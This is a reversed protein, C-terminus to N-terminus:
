LFSSWVFDVNPRPNAWPWHMTARKCPQNSKLTVSVPVIADSTIDGRCWQFKNRDANVSASRSWSFHTSRFPLAMESINGSLWLFQFNCLAGNTEIPPRSTIFSIFILSKRDPRHLNLVDSSKSDYKILSFTQLICGLQNTELEIQIYSLLGFPIMISETFCQHFLESEIDRMLIWVITRRLHFIILLTTLFYAVHVLFQWCIAGGFGQWIESQEEDRVPSVIPLDMILSRWISMAIWHLIEAHFEWCISEFVNQDNGTWIIEFKDNGENMPLSWEIWRKVFKHNARFVFAAKWLMRKEQDHSRCKQQNM